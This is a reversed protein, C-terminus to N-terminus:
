SFLLFYVIIIQKEYNIDSNGGFAKEGLKVAVEMLEQTYVDEFQVITNSSCVALLEVDVGRKVPAPVVEDLVPRRRKFDLCSHRSGSSVPVVNFSSRPKASSVTINPALSLRALDPVPDSAAAMVISRRWNKGPKAALNPSVEADSPQFRSKRSLPLDPKAFLHSPLPSHAADLSELLSTTSLIGSPLRAREKLHLDPSSPSLRTRDKMHLDSLSSPTCSSWTRPPPPTVLSSPVSPKDPTVPSINEQVSIESLALKSDPSTKTTIQAPVDQVLSFVKCSVSSDARGHAEVFQINNSSLNNSVLSSASSVTQTAFYSLDPDM